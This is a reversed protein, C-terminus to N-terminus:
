LGVGQSLINSDTDILRFSLVEPSCFSSLAHTAVHMIIREKCIKEHSFTHRLNNIMDPGDWQRRTTCTYDSFFPSFLFISYNFSWNSSLWWWHSIILFWTHMSKKLKKQIQMLGAETKRAWAKCSKGELKRNRTWRWGYAMTWYTYRKQM